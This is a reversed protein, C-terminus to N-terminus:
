PSGKNCAVIKVSRGEFTNTFVSGYEHGYLKNAQEFPRLKANEAFTFVVALRCHLQLSALLETV